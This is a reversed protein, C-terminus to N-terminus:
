SIFQSWIPRDTMGSAGDRDITLWGDSCGDEEGWGLHREIDEVEPDTGYTVVLVKPKVTRSMFESRLASNVPEDRFSYGVIVWHDSEKLGKSFMSYALSFPFEAADKTKQNSSALVVTPLASSKKHSASLSRFSEWASGDKLLDKPVKFYAGSETSKWYTLSGHLHLLRVRRDDPFDSTSRRLESMDRERGCFDVKTTRWGHGMDAFETKCSDIMAALLVTDYNLNGFTVNGQFASKAANVLANPVTLNHPRAISREAIVELVYSTGTDRIQRAFQRTLKIAKQIELNDPDALKALSNLYELTATQTGFAGVLKEFDEDSKNGDPLTNTAINKIAKVIEGGSADEIRQLVENTINSLNLDLDSAISLGNGVLLAANRKKM